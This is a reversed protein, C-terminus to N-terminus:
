QALTLRLTLGVNTNATPYTTSIYPENVTRDYFFRVNLRKSITYDASAKISVVRQGSTIENQDEVMKRIYTKNDRISVDGRLQLDSKLENGLIEFPLVVDKFSYGTGFTYEQSKVENVQYNSLSLSLNRSKKVEFKTVLDNEWTIDIGLLPSFSESITVNQMRRRPIFNEDRNRAIPDGESNEEYQQPTQYSTSMRSRYSHSLRFSKMYDKFFAV